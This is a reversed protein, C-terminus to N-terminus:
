MVLLQELEMLLNKTIFKDRMFKEQGFYGADVDSPVV